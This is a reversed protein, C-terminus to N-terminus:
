PTVVVCGVGNLDVVSLGRGVFELRDVVTDLLNGFADLTEREIGAYALEHYGEALELGELGMLTGYKLWENDHESGKRGMDGFLYPMVKTVVGGHAVGLPWLEVLSM